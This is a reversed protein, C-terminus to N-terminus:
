NQLTFTFENKKGGVVEATLGSTAYSAYKAPIVSKPPPMEGHPDAPPTAGADIETAIIAVKHSGIIAGDGNSYTTLTFSGDSQIRGVAPLGAAPQFSVSGYPLPKGNYIVTGRVPATELQTGESCGGLLVCLGIGWFLRQM